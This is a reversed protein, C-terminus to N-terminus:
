ELPLKMKSGIEEANIFYKKNSEEIEPIQGMLKNWEEVKSYDKSWDFNVQKLDQLSEYIQLDALTFNYGCLFQGEFLALQTNLRQLHKAINNEFEKKKTSEIPKETKLEKLWADIYERINNQFEDQNWELLEDIKKQQEKDSSPYLYDPIGKNAYKTCLYKLIQNSNDLRENGDMLTPVRCNPNIIKFEPCKHDNNMLNLEIHTYFLDSMDMLAKVARSPGQTSSHYFTINVKDM